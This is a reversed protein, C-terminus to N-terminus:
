AVKHHPKKTIEDCDGCYGNEATASDKNCKELEKKAMDHIFIYSFVANYLDSNTMTESVHVASTEDVILLDPYEARWDRITQQVATKDGLDSVFATGKELTTNAMQIIQKGIHPPFNDYLWKNATARPTSLLKARM